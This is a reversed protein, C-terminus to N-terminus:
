VCFCSYPLHNTMSRSVVLTGKDRKEEAVASCSWMFIPIVFHLSRSQLKRNKLCGCHFARREGHALM